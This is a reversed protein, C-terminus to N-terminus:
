PFGDRLPATGCQALVQSGPPSTHNMFEDRWGSNLDLRLELYGLESFPRFGQVGHVALSCM